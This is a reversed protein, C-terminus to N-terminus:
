EAETGPIVVYGAAKLAEIDIGLNICIAENYKKVPSADYAIEMTSVDEKGLLIKAAM